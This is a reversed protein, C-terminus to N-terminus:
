TEPKNLVKQNRQIILQRRLQQIENQAAMLETNREMANQNDKALMSKALTEIFHMKDMIRDMKRELDPLIYECRCGDDETRGQKTAPEYLNNEEAENQITSHDYVYDDHRTPKRTRRHYSSETDYKLFNQNLASAIDGPLSNPHFSELPMKQEVSMQNSVSRTSSKVTSSPLGVTMFDQLNIPTSGTINAIVGPTDEDLPEDKIEKSVLPQQDVEVNTADETSAEQQTKRIFGGGPLLSKNKVVFVKRKGGDKPTSASPTM